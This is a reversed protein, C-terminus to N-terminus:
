QSECSKLRVMMRQADSMIREFEHLRVVVCRGKNMVDPKCLILPLDDKEKPGRLVGDAYCRDPLDGLVYHKYVGTSACGSLVVSLILLTRVM